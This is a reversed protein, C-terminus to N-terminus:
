VALQGPQERQFDCVLCVLCYGSSGIHAGPSPFSYSETFGRGLAPIIFRFRFPFSLLGFQPIFRVFVSIRVIRIM